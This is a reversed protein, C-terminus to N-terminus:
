ERPEKTLGYVLAGTGFVGALTRVLSLDVERFLVLDLVVLVNNAALGAFGICSWLLLSTRSIRYYRLLMWAAVLSTGACLLYIVEAAGM